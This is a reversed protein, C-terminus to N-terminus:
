NHLEVVLPHGTDFWYRHLDKINARTPLGRLHMNAEAYDTLYVNECLASRAQQLEAPETIKRAIEDYSGGKIRLRVRLDARINWVWSSVAGPRTVALHPPM